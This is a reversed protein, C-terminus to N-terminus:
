WTLETAECQNGKFNVTGQWYETGSQDKVSYFCSRTKEKGLDKTFHAQGGECSPAYPSYVNTGCSAVIQNDISFTLSTAGNDILSDSTQKGYWFVVGGSYTCSGDDKKCNACYNSGDKDTCGKKGCQVFFLGSINLILVLLFKTKM